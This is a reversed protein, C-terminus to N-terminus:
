GFRMLTYGKDKIWRKGAKYNHSLEECVSWFRPSHDLHKLHAVEHAVVYDCADLPAFILRWSLSIDGQSSCSGWRSTMDGIRISNVQKGIRDAKDSVMDALRERALNKLYRAIRPSPDDKNTLIDLVAQEHESSNLKITTTKRSLDQTIKILTDEGLIPLVAGNEFPVPQPLSELKESIWDSNKRAFMLAQSKSARKPMILDICRDRYNLRLTFRRAKASAKVKLKSDLYSSM